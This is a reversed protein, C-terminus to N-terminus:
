EKEGGEERFHLFDEERWIIMDPLLDNSFIVPYGVSRVACDLVRKKEQDNWYSANVFQIARGNLSCAHVCMDVNSRLENSAFELSMPNSEIAIYVLELDNRLPHSCVGYMGFIPPLSLRKKRKKKNKWEHQIIIAANTKILHNKLEIEKEIKRKPGEVELKKKAAMEYMNMANEHGNEHALQFYYMSKKYSQSPVGLGNMYMLGLNYQAIKHGCGSALEWWHRAKKLSKVIGGIGAYYATGLNYQAISHEHQLQKKKLGDKKESDTEDGGEGDGDGDNDNEDDKEKETRSSEEEKAEAERKAKLIEEVTVGEVQVQLVGGRGGGVYQLAMGNQELAVEIIQRDSQLRLSAHALSRGDYEVAALVLEKNNRMEETCFRLCTGFGKGGGYSLCPSTVAARCINMYEEKKSPDSIFSPHIFRITNGDHRVAKLVIDYYKMFPTKKKGNDDEDEDEDEEDEARKMSGLQLLEEDAMFSHDAFIIALSNQRCAEIVVDRDGRFNYFQLAWGNNQCAVMAIDKDNRLYNSAYKLAIGNNSVAALVVDRENKLWSQAHQLLLGSVNKVTRLVSEKHDWMLAPRNVARAVIRDHATKLELLKEATFIPQPPPPPPPIVLWRSRLKGVIMPHEKAYKRENKATEEAKAVREAEINNFCFARKELCVNRARKHGYKPILKLAIAYMAAAKSWKQDNFLKTAKIFQPLQTTYDTIILKNEIPKISFLKESPKKKKCQLRFDEGSNSSAISPLSTEESRSTPLIEDETAGPFEGTSLAVCCESVAKYQSLLKTQINEIIEKRQPSLLRQFASEKKYLTM